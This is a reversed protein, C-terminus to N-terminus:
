SDEDDDEENSNVLSAMTPRADGITTYSCLKGCHRCVQTVISCGFMLYKALEETGKGIEIMRAPMYNISQTEWQHKHWNYIM